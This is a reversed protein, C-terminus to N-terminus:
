MRRRQFGKSAKRVTSLTSLGSYERGEGLCSVTERVSCFSRLQVSGPPFGLDIVQRTAKSLKRLREPGRKSGIEFGVERPVTVSLTCLGPCREQDTNM